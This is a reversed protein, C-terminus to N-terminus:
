IELLFEQLYCMCYGCPYLFYAADGKCFVLAKHRFAYMGAWTGASGGLLSLGFLTKEPIRWAHARAKCKDIGMAAFGAINMLLLYILFIKM